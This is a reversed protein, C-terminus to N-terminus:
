KKLKRFLKKFNEEESEKVINKTSNNKSSKFGWLHKMKDISENVININKEHTIVAEGDENGEWILRYYNEGDTVAFITEDMKVRSPLKETLKLVQEKSKIEGKVKFINETMVDSYKNESEMRTPNKQGIRLLPTDKQIRTGKPIVEPDEKFGMEIGINNPKFGVGYQHTGVITKGDTTTVDHTKAKNIESESIPKETTRVKPSYHYEDPKEYKHKLYKESYNRLKLYTSDNGNLEDQRKMFEDHVPTGENDYRLALMGPGLAETDYVDYDKTQDDERNVKKPEFAEGIQSPEATDTKQFNRMRDLVMKYYEEADKVDEKHVKDLKPQVSASGLNVLGTEKDQITELSGFQGKEADSLNDSKHKVGFAVEMDEFGKTELLTNLKNKVIKKINDSMDTKKIYIDNDSSKAKNEEIIKGIGDRKYSDKISALERDMSRYHTLDIGKDNEISNRVIKSVEVLYGVVSTWLWKYKGAIAKFFNAISDFSDKALSGVGTLISSVHDSLGGEVEKKLKNLGDKTEDKSFNQPDGVANLYANIKKVYFDIKGNVYSLTASLVLSKLFGLWGETINKNLFDNFKKVYNKLSESFSLYVKKITEFTEPAKSKVIIGVKDLSNAIGNLKEEFKDSFSEIKKRYASNLSDLVKPNEILNKLLLAIDAPSKIVSVVTEKTDKVWKNLSDMFGELILQEQIILNRLEPNYGGFSENLPVSIGLVNKIYIPDNLRDLSKNYLNTVKLDM